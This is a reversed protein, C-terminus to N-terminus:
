ILINIQLQINFSLSEFTDSASSIVKKENAMDFTKKNIGYLKDGILPFGINQM